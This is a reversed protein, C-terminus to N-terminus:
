TKPRTEPGGVGRMEGRGCSGLADMIPAKARRSKPLELSRTTRAIRGVTSAMLARSGSSSFSDSSREGRARGRQALPDGAAGREVLHQGVGEGGHALRGLPGEALAM